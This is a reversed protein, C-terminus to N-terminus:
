HVYKKVWFYRMWFDSVQMFHKCTGGKLTLGFSWSISQRHADQTKGLDSHITMNELINCLIDFILGLKM